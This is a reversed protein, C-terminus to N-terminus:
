GLIDNLDRLGDNTTVVIVRDDAMICDNGGPLIAQRGRIICAILLNPRLPLDKLLIGVVPAGTVVKFELAEARGGVIKYLTEVNSGLSNQMARVYRIIQNATIDKPSVVSDLGVNGVLEILSGRNVKTVVKGVGRTHAYLSLIINEEDVGTLSVFSDAADIGEER